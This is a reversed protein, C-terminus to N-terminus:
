TKLFMIEVDRSLLLLNDIRLSYTDKDLKVGSLSDFLTELYSSIAVMLAQDGDEFLKGVEGLWSSRSFRTMKSVLDLFFQLQLGFDVIPYHIMVDNPLTEVKFKLCSLFKFVSNAGVVMSKLQESRSVVLAHRNSNRLRELAESIKESIFSLCLTVHDKSPDRGSKEEFGAPCVRLVHGLHALTSYHNFSLCVPFSGACVNLLRFWFFVTWIGTTRLLWKM